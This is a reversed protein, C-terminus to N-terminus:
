VIKTKRAVYKSDIIKKEVCRKIKDKDFDYVEKNFKERDIKEIPNIVGM